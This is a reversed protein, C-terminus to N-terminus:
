DLLASIRGVSGVAASWKQGPLPPAGTALGAVVLVAGAPLGGLRRAEGAAEEMLAALPARLKRPHSGTPGIRVEGDEPLPLASRKGVLVLGLGGLDALLSPADTPTRGFRTAAIDIVPHLASFVPAGEGLGEALVGLIGASIRPQRLTSLAVPTGARLMRPELMPAALRTLGDPGPALRVGCVHQGLEEVLALAIAEGAAMDKPAAEPPLSALADGSHWAEALWKAAAAATDPMM